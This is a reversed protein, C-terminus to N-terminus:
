SCIQTMWPIIKGRHQLFAFQVRVRSPQRPPSVEGPLISDNNPLAREWIPWGAQSPCHFINLPEWQRLLHSLTPPEELPESDGDWRPQATCPIHAGSLPDLPEEQGTSGTNRFFTTLPASAGVSGLHQLCLPLEPCPSMGPEAKLGPFCLCRRCGSCSGSCNRGLSFLQHLQDGQEGGGWMM